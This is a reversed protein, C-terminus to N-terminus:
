NNTKRPMKNQRAFINFLLLQFLGFFLVLVFPFMYLNFLLGTSRPSLYMGLIFFIFSINFFSNMNFKGFFPILFLAFVYRYLYNTSFLLATTMVISGFITLSFNHDDRLQKFIDYCRFQKILLVSGVILIVFALSLFIGSKTAGSLHAMLVPVGASGAIDTVQFKQIESLDPLIFNLCIIFVISTVFKIKKSSKAVILYCIILIPYIKMLSAVAVLFIATISLSESRGYIRAATYLTLLIFIDINQRDILLLFPPSIVILSLLINQEINLRQAFDWLLVGVLLISIISIILVSYQSDLFSNLFRLELIIRPYILGQEGIQDIETDLLFGITQRLDIFNPFTNGVQLIRYYSNIFPLNVFNQVLAPLANFLFFLVAPLFQSPKQKFMGGLKKIFNAHTFLSVLTASVIFGTVILIIKAALNNGLFSSKAEGLAQRSVPNVLYFALIFCYLILVSRYPNLHLQPMKKILMMSTKAVNPM